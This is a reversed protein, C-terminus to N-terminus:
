SRCSNIFAQIVLTNPSLRFIDDIDKKDIDRKLSFKVEIISTQQPFLAKM